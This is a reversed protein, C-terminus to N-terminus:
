ASAVYDRVSEAVTRRPQWGFEGRLRSADGVIRKADGSRARAPDALVRPAPVGMSEAALALMEQGTVSRGSAVNYVRSSHSAAEALLLYATAVDRVDTYDRATTLDGARLPEGPALGRLGEVLDPLLFGRSQGPGIHNFPRAIVVDLGRTAYYSLQTEVLVKSVVYPSSPFTPSSEDRSEGAAGGYVAGSSVGVIRPARRASLLAEGMRTIMASNTEIYLQPDAFSPGVAALGALHVVVDAGPIEPWEETLDAVLAEDILGSLAPDDFGGRSIGVM